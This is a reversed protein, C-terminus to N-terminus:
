PGPSTCYTVFPSSLREDNVLTIPTCPGRKRKVHVYKASNHCHAGCDVLQRYVHSPRPSPPTLSSVSSRHTERRVPFTLASARGQARYDRGVSIVGSMGFAPRCRVRFTGPGDRSVLLRTTAPGPDSGRFYGCDCGPRLASRVSPVPPTSAPAGVSPEGRRHEIFKIM